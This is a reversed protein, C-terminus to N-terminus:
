ATQRMVRGTQGQLKTFQWVQEDLLDTFEEETMLGKRNAGDSGAFLAHAWRKCASAFIYPVDLRLWDTSAGPVASGTVDDTAQYIDATAVHFVQAGSAFSIATWEVGYTFDPCRMRFEIWVSNPMDSSPAFRVGEEALEYDISLADAHARPDKDWAGLVAEIAVEGEQSWDVFRNFDTLLEWADSVGPIDTDVAGAPARYYAQTAVDYVEFDQDYDDATWIPRFFREELIVLDPWRWHEHAQKLAQALYEMVKLKDSAAPATPDIGALRLTGDLLSKYTVTRM